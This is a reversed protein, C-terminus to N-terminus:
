EHVIAVYDIVNGGKCNTEPAYLDYSWTFWPEYERGDEDRAVDIIEVGERELWAAAQAQEEDSLGSADGNILYSAWHVPGTVIISTM